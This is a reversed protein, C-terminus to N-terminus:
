PKDNIEMCHCLRPSKDVLERKETGMLTLTTGKMNTPATAILITITLGSTLMKMGTGGAGNAGEGRKVGVGEVLTRNIGRDTLMGTMKMETGGAEIVGAGKGIAIEATTEGGGIGPIMGGREPGRGTLVGTQAGPIRILGEIGIGTVIAGSGRM